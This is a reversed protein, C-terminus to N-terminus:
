NRNPKGQVQPMPYPPMPQSTYMGAQQPPYRGFFFCGWFHFVRKTPIFLYFTQTKNFTNIYGPQPQPMPYGQIVTNQPPYVGTSAPVPITTTTVVVPATFPYFSIYWM